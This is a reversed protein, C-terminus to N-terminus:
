GYTWYIKSYSPLIVRNLYTAALYFPNYGGGM